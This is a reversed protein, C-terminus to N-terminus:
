LYDNDWDYSTNRKLRIFKLDTEGFAWKTALYSEEDVYLTIKQAGPLQERERNLALLNVVKTKPIFHAGAELWEITIIPLLNYNYINPQPNFDTGFCGITIRQLKVSQRIFPMIMNVNTNGQISLHQLNTLSNSLKEFDHVVWATSVHLQALSKFESVLLISRSDILSILLKALGNVNAFQVIQEYATRFSLQLRRYFERQHLKNLLDCMPGVGVNEAQTIILYDLEVNARM